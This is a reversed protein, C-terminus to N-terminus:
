KLIITSLYYGIGFFLAFLLLGLLIMLPMNIQKPVPEPAYVNGNYSIQSRNMRPSMGVDAVTQLGQEQELLLANVETGHPVYDADAGVRVGEYM